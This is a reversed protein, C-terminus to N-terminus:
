IFFNKYNNNKLYSGQKNMKPRSINAKNIKSVKHQAEM